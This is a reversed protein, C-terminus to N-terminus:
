LINLVAKVKTKLYKKLTNKTKLFIVNINKFIKLSKLINIYFFM